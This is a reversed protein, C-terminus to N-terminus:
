ALAMLMSSLRSCKSFSLSLTLSTRCTTTLRKGTAVDSRRMMENTCNSKNLSLNETGLAPGHNIGTGNAREVVSPATQNYPRAPHQQIWAFQIWLTEKSAMCSVDDTQMGLQRAGPYRFASCPGVLCGGSAPPQVAAQLILESNGDALERSGTRAAQDM